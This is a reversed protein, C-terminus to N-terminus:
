GLSPCEWQKSISFGYIFLRIWSKMGPDELLAEKAALAHQIELAYETMQDESQVITM